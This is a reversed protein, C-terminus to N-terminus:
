MEGTRWLPIRSSHPQATTDIAVISCTCIAAEQPLAAQRSFAVFPVFGCLKCFFILLKWFMFETYIQPVNWSSTSRSTHSGPPQLELVDCVLDVEVQCSPEWAEFSQKSRVITLDPKTAASQSTAAEAIWKDTLTKSRWLEVLTARFDDPVKHCKWTKAQFIESPNKKATLRVCACKCLGNQVPSSVCFFQLAKRSEELKHTRTPYAGYSM